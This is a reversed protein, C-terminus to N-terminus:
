GGSEGDRPRRTIARFQLVVLVVVVLGFVVAAAVARTRSPLFDDNPPRPPAAPPPLDPLAVETEPPLAAVADHVARRHDMLLARNSYQRSFSCQDFIM